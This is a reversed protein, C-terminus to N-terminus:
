DIVRFFEAYGLRYSVWQKSKRFGVLGDVWYENQITRGAGECNERIHRTGHTRGIIEVTESGILQLTCAMDVRLTRDEDGLLFYSRKHNGSASSIQRASPAAASMLDAVAGRTSILVGERFTFISGDATTWTETGSNTDRPTIYTDAGLTAIKVQVVPVGVSALSVRLQAAAAAPTPQPGAAAADNAQTAPRALGEVGDLLKSGLSEAPDNGCAGALGALLLLFLSAQKVAMGQGM